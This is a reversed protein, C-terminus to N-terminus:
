YKNGNVLHKIAIFLRKRNIRDIDCVYIEKPM